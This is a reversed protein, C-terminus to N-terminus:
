DLAIIDHDRTIKLSCAICMPMQRKDRTSTLTVLVEADGDCLSCEKTM